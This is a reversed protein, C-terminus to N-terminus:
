PTLRQYDEPIMSLLMQDCPKGDNDLEYNRLVGERMMGVREALRISRQNRADCIAEVRQVKFTEFAVRLVARVGESMYGQGSYDTRQWYGIECKPVEWDWHHLDIEGLAIPSFDGDATKLFVRWMFTDHYEFWQQARQSAFEISELTPLTKAWSIWPRLEAASAQIAQYVAAADEPRAARLWLRSTEIELPAIPLPNPLETM